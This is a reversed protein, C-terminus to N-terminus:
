THMYGYKITLDGLRTWGLSLDATVLRAAVWSSTAFIYIYICVYIYIYMHIDCLDGIRYHYWFVWEPFPYQEPITKYVTVMRKSVVCRHRRSWCVPDELFDLIKGGKSRVQCIVNRPRFGCIQILCIRDHWLSVMPDFAPSPSSCWCSGKTHRVQQTLNRQEVSINSLITNTGRQNKWGTLVSNECNRAWIPGELLPALCFYM